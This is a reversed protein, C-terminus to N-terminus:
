FRMMCSTSTLEKTWAKPYWQYHQDNMFSVILTVCVVCCSSALSGRNKNFTSSFNWNMSIITTKILHVVEFKMSPNCNCVNTNSPTLSLTHILYWWQCWESHQIYFVWMRLLESELWPIFSRAGHMCVGNAWLYVAFNYSNKPHNQNSKHQTTQLSYIRSFKATM